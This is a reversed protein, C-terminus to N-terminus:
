LEFASIIYELRSAMTDFFRQFYSYINNFSIAFAISKLKFTHKRLGKSGSNNKEYNKTAYDILYARKTYRSMTAVSIPINKIIGELILILFKVSRRM